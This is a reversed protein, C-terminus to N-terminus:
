FTDYLVALIDGPTGLVYITSLDYANANGQTPMFQYDGTANIIGGRSTSILSDGIRAQGTLTKAQVQVWAAKKSTTSLATATATLTVDAISNVAM